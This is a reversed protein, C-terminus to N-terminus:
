GANCASQGAAPVVQHRDQCDGDAACHGCPDAWGPSSRAQRATTVAAGRPDPQGLCARRASSRSGSRDSSQANETAGKDAPAHRQHHKGCQISCIKWAGARGKGPGARRRGRHWVPRNAHFEGAAYGLEFQGLAWLVIGTFCGALVLLTVTTLLRRRKPPERLYEPVTPKPRGGQLASDATGRGDGSTAVDDGRSEAAAQAAAQPLQYM